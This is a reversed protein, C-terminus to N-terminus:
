IAILKNLLDKLNVDEDLNLKKNNVFITPTDTLGLNKALALDAAVTQKTVDSTLCHQWTDTNLKLGDAIKILTEDNIKKVITLENLFEWYKKQAGACILARHPLTRDGTNFLKERLNNKIYFQAAQPNNKVFDAILDAYNRDIEENFDFFGIILLQSGPNGLPRDTAGLTIETFNQEILPQAAPKTEINGARLIQSYLMLGAALVAVSLILYFKRLHTM